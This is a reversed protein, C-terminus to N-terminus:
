GDHIKRTNWELQYRRHKEDDPYKEDPSYPYSSMGRFPLPGVGDSHATYISRDKCFGFTRMVYTRRWGPQLEPLLAADFEVALEEGRGFIVFQDDPELTLPLVDGYRTYDGPIRALRTNSFTGLLGCCAVLGASRRLPTVEVLEAERARTSAQFRRLAALARVDKAHTKRWKIGRTWRQLTVAAARRDDLEEEPTPERRWLKM